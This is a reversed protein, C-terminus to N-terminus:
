FDCNKICYSWLSKANIIKDCTLVHKGIRLSTTPTFSKAGASQYFTNTCVKSLFPSKLLVEIVNKLHSLGGSTTGSPM